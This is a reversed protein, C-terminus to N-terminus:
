TKCRIKRVQGAQIGFATAIQSATLTIGYENQVFDHFLVIQERRSEWAIGQECRLMARIDQASVDAQYLAPEIVDRPLAAAKPPM